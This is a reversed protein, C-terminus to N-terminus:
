PLAPPFDEPPEPESEGFTCVRTRRDDVGARNKASLVVVACKDERDPIEVSWFVVGSERDGRELEYRSRKEGLGVAVSVRKARKVGAEILTPGKDVASYSISQIEPRKPGGDGAVAPAAAVAAGVVGACISRVWVAAM